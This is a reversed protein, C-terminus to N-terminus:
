ILSGFNLTIYFGGFRTIKVDQLSELGPAYPIFYYRFSIGTLTGANVGFYAGAGVYAGLTMKM